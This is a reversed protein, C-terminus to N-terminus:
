AKRPLRRTAAGILGNSSTATRLSGRKMEEVCVRNVDWGCIMRRSACTKREQWAARPRRKNEGTRCGGCGLGFRLLFVWESTCLKVASVAASRGWPQEALSLSHSRRVASSPSTTARDRLCRRIRRQSSSAPCRDRRPTLVIPATTVLRHRGFVVLALLVLVPWRRLEVAADAMLLRDHHLRPCTLM